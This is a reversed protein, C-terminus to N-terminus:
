AFKDFFLASETTLENSKLTNNLTKNKETSSKAGDPLDIRIKSCIYRRV